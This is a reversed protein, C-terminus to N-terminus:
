SRRPVSRLERIAKGYDKQGFVATGAVLIDAGADIAKPATQRNIGGDVQIYGDFRARIRRIKDLVEEIFDQGGFGPEVTMLLVMDVQDIVGDLVSIDTAPKISVGAKKGKDRIKKITNPPTDCAEVHFTILDSGADAFQEVYRAPDDIMLHVDFFMETLPRIAKVVLPGITINPVFIGDMVDIHVWDAAANEIAKIEDGLRSFDASLISPAILIKNNNM